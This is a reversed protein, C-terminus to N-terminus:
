MVQIERVFPNMDMVIVVAGALIKTNLNDIVIARINNNIHKWIKSSNYTKVIDKFNDLHVLNSIHM